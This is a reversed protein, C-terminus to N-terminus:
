DLGQSCLDICQQFIAFMADMAIECMEEMWSFPDFPNFGDEEEAKLKAWEPSAFVRRITRHREHM